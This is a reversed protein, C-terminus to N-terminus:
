YDKGSPDSVNYPLIRMPKESLSVMPNEDYLVRDFELPIAKRDNVIDVQLQGRSSSVITLFQNRAIAYRLTVGKFAPFFVSWLKKMAATSQVMGDMLERYRFTLENPIKIAPGYYYNFTDLKQNTVVDANDDAAAQSVPMDITGDPEVRVPIHTNSGEVVIRVSRPDIGKDRHQMFFRLYIKDKEALAEFKQIFAFAKKYPAVDPDKTGVVVVSELAQTGGLTVVQAMLVPVFFSYVVGAIFFSLWRTM